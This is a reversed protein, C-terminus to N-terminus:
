GALVVGLVFLASLGVLIRRLWIKRSRRAKRQPSLSEIWLLSDMASDM